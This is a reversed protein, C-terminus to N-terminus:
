HRIQLNELSRLIFSLNSFISLFYGFVFVGGFNPPTLSSNIKCEKQNFIM